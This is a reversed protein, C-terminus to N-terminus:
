ARGVRVRYRSLVEGGLVCFLIIGEIVGTLSQPFSNSQLNLGANTLAGVFLASLVVALPNYRALAAVVIGTYGYQPQQLGSPDLVHSFDGIQSAGALGALAGSLMMVIVLNRRSAMGAYRGAESNDATVRLQYGFWTHRILVFVVLACVVGILLGLPVVLGGGSFGPWWAVSALQKGQPYVFATSGSMDRWYSTSDVILYYLLLGAVYNLMLSTLIENTNLYARLLGPVAAWLAGGVIAALLMMPLAVALGSSGFAIGAGAACVAGIYLQGEGGINWIRMRFAVAAALGTFVLPTASALTASISGHGTVAARVVQSLASFPNNGVIALLVGVIVFALMLSGFPVLAAQWRPQASLRRELRVPIRASLSARPPEAIVTV